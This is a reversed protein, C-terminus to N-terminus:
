SNWLDEEDKQEKDLIFSKPVKAYWAISVMRQLVDVQPGLRIEPLGTWTPFREAKEKFFQQLLVQYTAITTHEDAPFGSMTVASGFEVYDPEPFPVATTTAPNGITVTTYPPYQSASSTNTIM